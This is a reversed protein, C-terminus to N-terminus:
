KKFFQKLENLGKGDINNANVVKMLQMMKEPKMNNGLVRILAFGNENDNGYIIIEDIATDDGLYKVVGKHKGSNLRMLEQYKDNKLISSIKGKEAEYETRNDDKLKFALINLKQVSEYAEKQEPTLNEQNINLVTSPITLSIFNANESNNVFYKQLSEDNSCSLALLVTCVVTVFNTISSKM